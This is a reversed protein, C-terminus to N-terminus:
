GIGAELALRRAVTTFIHAGIRRDANRITITM